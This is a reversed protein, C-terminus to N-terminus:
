RKKVIQFMGRELADTSTKTKYTEFTGDFNIMLKQPRDGSVYNTNLWTCCIEESGSFSQGAYIMLSICLAVISLVRM